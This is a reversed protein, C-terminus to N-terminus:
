PQEGAGQGAEPLIQEDLLSRNTPPAFLLAITTVALTLVPWRVAPVARLPEYAVAIVLLQTLLAPSRSWRRAALLGRVVFLLAVGAAAAMGAIWAVYIWSAPEGFVGALVAYGGLAVLGVAEAGVLVASGVLSWPRRRPRPRTDRVPQGSPQRGPPPAPSPPTSPSSVAILNGARSWLPRLLGWVRERATFVLHTPPRSSENPAPHWWTVFCESVPPLKRQLPRTRVRASDDTQDRHQARQYTRRVGLHPPECQQYWCPPNNRRTFVNV